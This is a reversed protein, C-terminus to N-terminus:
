SIFKLCDEVEIYWPNCGFTMYLQLPGAWQHITITDQYNQVICQPCTSLYSSIFLGSGVHLTDKPGDQLSGSSGPCLHNRTTCQRFLAFMEHEFAATVRQIEMHIRFGLAGSASTYFFDIYVLDYCLHYVRRILQCSPLPLPFLQDLVCTICFFFFFLAIKNFHNISLYCLKYIVKKKSTLSVCM